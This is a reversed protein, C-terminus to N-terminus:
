ERSNAKNMTLSNICRLMELVKASTNIRKYKEAETQRHHSQNKLRKTRKEIGIKRSFRIRGRVGSRREPSAPRPPFSM